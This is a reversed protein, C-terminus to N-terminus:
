VVGKALRRAELQQYVGDLWQRAVGRLDESASEQKAQNDPEFQLAPNKANLRAAGAMRKMEEESFEVRWHKLLAPWISDPLQRYNVLM